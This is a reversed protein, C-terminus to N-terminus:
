EGVMEDYVDGAAALFSVGPGDPPERIAMLACHLAAGDTPEGPYDRKKTLGILAVLVCQIRRAEISMGLAVNNVASPSDLHAGETTAGKRAAACGIQVVAEEAMDTYAGMYSFHDNVGIDLKPVCAGQAFLRQYFWTAGLRHVLATFSWGGVVCHLSHLLLTSGM